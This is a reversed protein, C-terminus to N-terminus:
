AKTRRALQGRLRALLAADASPDPSFAPEMTAPMDTKSYLDTKSYGAMMAPRLSSKLRIDSGLATVARRLENTTTLM